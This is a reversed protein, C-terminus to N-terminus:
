RPANRSFFRNLLSLLESATLYYMVSYNQENFKSLLDYYQAETLRHTKMLNEKTEPMNIVVDVYTKVRVNENVLRGIMAKQRKRRSYYFPLKKNQRRLQENQEHFMGDYPSIYRDEVTVADLMTVSEALLIMSPEWDYLPFEVSKYGVLSFVLTDQRNATLTFAGKSDTFTGRDRNKVRVTVYPLADFSASDAVIGRIIEQSFVPTSLFLIVVVLRLGKM